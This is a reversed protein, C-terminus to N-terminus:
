ESSSLTATGASDTLSGSAITATYAGSATVSSFSPITADSVTQSSTEYVISIGGVTYTGTKSGDNPVRGYTPLYNGGSSTYGGLLADTGVLGIEYITPAGWNRAFQTVGSSNLKMFGGGGNTYLSGDSAAAVSNGPNGIKFWQGTGSSNLKLLYAQDYESGPDGISQYGAAYVNLSSDVGVGVVRGYQGPPIGRRWQETGSSNFKIIGQQGAAYFNNSSDVACGQSFGGGWERAWQLAGTSDMKLAVPKGTSTIYSSIYLNDDSGIVADSIFLNTLTKQWQLTGSSNYKVIYGISSANQAVYISGDSASLIGNTLPTTHGGNLKRQWTIATKTTKLTTTEGMKSAVVAYNQSGDAAPRGTWTLGSGNNVLNIFHNGGLGVSPTISNSASSATSTGNANTATMTFTYAQNTAFTGTVTLPSSTGSTSLSISPSSTVTYSTITSGGTAGATFPVSVTTKNTASVTGITPAQPITTATISSSAASTLTGNANAASVTFTYSTASQLGTVTIPSTGTGTFSGPTSTATFTTATGGTPAATYAVTASGNNYARSTGVNTAAGITPADPVDAIPTVGAM